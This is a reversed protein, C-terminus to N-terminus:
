RAAPVSGYSGYSDQPYPAAFAGACNGAQACDRFIEAPSRGNLRNIEDQQQQIQQQQAQTEQQQQMRQQDAQAQNIMQQSQLQMQQMAPSAAANGYADARAQYANGMVQLGAGLGSAVAGIVAVTQQKQIEYARYKVNDHQQLNAYFEQTYKEFLGLAKEDALKHADQQKAIYLFQKKLTDLDNYEQFGREGLIVEYADFRCNVAAVHTNKEKAATNACESDITEMDHTSHTFIDAQLAPGACAALAVILTSSVYKSM